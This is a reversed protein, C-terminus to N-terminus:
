EKEKVEQFNQFYLYFPLRHSFQWIKAASSDVAHLLVFFTVVLPDMQVTPTNASITSKFSLWEALTAKRNCQMGGHVKELHEKMKSACATFPCGIFRCRRHNGLHGKYSCESEYTRSCPLCMFFSFKICSSNSNTEQEEQAKAQQIDVFSEQFVPNMNLEEINTMMKRTEISEIRLSQGLFKSIELSLCLLHFSLDRLLYHSGNTSGNTGLTTQRVWVLERGGSCCSTRNLLLLPHQKNTRSVFAILYKSGFNGRPMSRRLSGSCVVSTNKKIRVRWFCPEDGLRLTLYALEHQSNCSSEGSGKPKMLLEERLESELSASQIRCHKRGSGRSWKSQFSLIAWKDSKQVVTLSFGHIQRGQTGFTEVM